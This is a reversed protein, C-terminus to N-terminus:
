RQQGGAPVRTLAPVIVSLAADIEDAARRAATAGRGYPDAVDWTMSDPSSARLAEHVLWFGTRATTTRELADALQHLGFLKHSWGPHSELIRMRQAFEFTVALDALALMETTLSRSVHGNPEGGRARLQKAM